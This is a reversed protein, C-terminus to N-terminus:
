NRLLVKFDLGIRMCLTNFLGAKRCFFIKSFCCLFSLTFPLIHLVSLSCLLLIALVINFLLLLLLLLLLFCYYSCYFYSRFLSLSTLVVTVVCCHCYFGFATFFDFCVWAYLVLRCLFVQESECVVCVHIRISAFIALLNINKKRHTTTSTTYEIFRYFKSM